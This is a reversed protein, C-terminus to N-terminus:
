VVEAVHVELDGAGLVPDGRQLHVDLDRAHREVDQAVRQRLRALRPQVDEPLHARRDGGRAALQRLVRRPDELDLDGRVLDAHQDALAALRNAAQLLLELGLDVDVVLTLHEHVGGVALQALRQDVPDVRHHLLDLDAVLEVALHDLGGREAGEDLQCLAGVAQQVDGVHRGALPDVGDLVHEVLAVLALAADDLDVPLAAPDAQTQGLIGLDGALGGLLVGGDAATPAVAAARTAPAIAARPAVASPAVAAAATRAARAMARAGVAALLTRPTCSSCRRVSSSEPTRITVSCMSETRDTASPNQIPVPETPSAVSSAPRDCRTSCM